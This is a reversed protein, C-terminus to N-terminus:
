VACDPPRTNMHLRGWWSSLISLKVLLCFWPSCFWHLCVTWMLCCEHNGSKHFYLKRGGLGMDTPIARMIWVGGAGVVRTGMELLWCLTTREESQSVQPCLYHCPGRQDSLHKPPPFQSERLSFKIKLYYIHQTRVFPTWVTLPYWERWVGGGPPAWQLVDNSYLAVLAM